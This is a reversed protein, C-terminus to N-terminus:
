WRLSAVPCLQVPLSEFSAAGAVFECTSAFLKRAAEIEGPTRGELNEGPNPGPKQGPKQEAM